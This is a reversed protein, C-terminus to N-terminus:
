YKGSSGGHSSGSSGVHVSSGGGGSSSSEKPRERKSVHRYLFTDARETVNMSGARIYDDAAPQPRVSSLQSRMIATTIVAAVVGLLLSIGLWGFSPPTKPMNDSDYAEGNKAQTIFRDCLVAFTLFAEGYDEDSLYPKFQDVMYEQGADTFMHICAGTTSIAWDREQPCILLLIGDRGSGFGFGNHDYFDDACATSSKGNLSSLTAVVVDCQQRESIEDLTALLSAEEEDSLLDAEDILRARLRSSPIVSVPEASAAGDGAIYASVGAFDTFLGPEDVIYGGETAAFASPLSLVCLALALLAGLIRKKM